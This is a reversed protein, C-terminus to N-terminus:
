FLKRSEGRGELRITPSILELQYKFIQKTGNFPMPTDKADLPVQPLRESGSFVL